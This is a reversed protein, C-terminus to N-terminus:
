RGRQYLGDFSGGVGCRGNDAVFLADNALQMLVECGDPDGAVM